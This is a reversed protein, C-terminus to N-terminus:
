AAGFLKKYEAASKPNQGGNTITSCVNGPTPDAFYADYGMVDSAAKFTEFMKQIYFPNDGGGNGSCSAVGWEGVGVKKGHERAFRIVYCLGNVDECQKNWTAEDSSPPFHDYSDIGVYDVYEDGPYASWPSNGSPVPSNHANFTWDIKVQPDTSRIAASIKQFCTRFTTADADTHWYMFTGNFEWGIRVISDARGHQVLFSGFKAWQSDYAGKACEGNSGQGKPYTPQSIVLKGAFGKFVDVPWTPEVLGGWGSTRDTYVHVLDNARGRWNGFDQLPGLTHAQFGSLWPLGSQPGAGDIDATGGAAPSASPTAGTGPTQTVPPLSPLATGSPTPSTVNPTATLPTATARISSPSPTVSGAGHRPWPSRAASPSPSVPTSVPTPAPTVAPVGSAPSASATPSPTAGTSATSGSGTSGVPLNPLPPSQFGQAAAEPGTVNLADSASLGGQTAKVDVKGNFDAPVRFGLIFRGDGDAKILASGGLKETQAAVTVDTAPTFDRGGVLVIDQDFLVLTVRSRSQPTMTTLPVGPQPQASAGASGPSASPSPTGQPSPSPSPSETAANALPTVAQLLGAVFVSVLGLRACTRVPRHPRRCAAPRSRSLRSRYLLTGPRGVPPTPRRRTTSAM